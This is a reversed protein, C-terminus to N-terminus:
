RQDPKTKNVINKDYPGTILIQKIMKNGEFSIITFGLVHDHKCFKFFADEM